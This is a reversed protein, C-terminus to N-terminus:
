KVEPDLMPMIMATTKAGRFVIPTIGGKTCIEFVEDQMAMLATDLYEKNVLICAKATSLNVAYDLKESPYAQVLISFMEVTCGRVIVKTEATVELLRKIDIARINTDIHEEFNDRADWKIKTNKLNDPIYDSKIFVAMKGSDCAILETETINIYYYQSPLDGEKAAFYSARIFDNVFTNNTFKNINEVKSQLLKKKIDSIRLEVTDMKRNIGDKEYELDDIQEQLADYQSSLNNRAKTLEILKEDLELNNNIM